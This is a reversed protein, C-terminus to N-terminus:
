RLDIPAKLQLSVAAGEEVRVAAADRRIVSLGEWVATFPPDLQALAIAYYDGPPIEALDFKGGAGCPYVAALDGPLLTQPVLLLKAGEGNEVSGSLRGGPKLIIRLPPSSDNFLTPQRLADIDGVMVSAAYYGPSYAIATVRYRGPDVDRIHLSGTKDTSAGGGRLGDASTLTVNIVTRPPAPSGDSLVVTGWIEIPRELRIRVDDIDKRVGVFAVGRDMNEAEVQLFWDGERVAPFEFVGDKGSDVDPEGAPQVRAPPSLPFVTTSGVSAMMIRPEGAGPLDRSLRVISGVSPKGEADVVVGRVKYVNAPPQLRIEYGGQDEGPRISIPEAFGSDTTAPFYTRVHGDFAALSVQRPEVNGFVFEGDGNTTTTTEYRPGLAVQVKVAPKGDTGVVRGRLTAPPILELRVHPPDTGADLHLSTNMNPYVPPPGFFGTKQLIVVYDGPAVGSIHFNGAADTVAQLLGGGVSRQLGLDSVKVAPNLLDAVPRKITQLLTIKAGDIGAGTVSNVVSGEVVSLQDQAFAVLPILLLACRRM